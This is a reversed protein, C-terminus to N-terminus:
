EAPCKPILNASPDSALARTRAPTVTWSGEAFADKSYIPKETGSLGNERSEHISRTQKM